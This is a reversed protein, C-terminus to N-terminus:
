RPVSGGHARYRPRDDAVHRGRNARTPHRLLRTRDAVLRPGARGGHDLGMLKGARLSREAMGDFVTALENVLRAGSRERPEHRYRWYTQTVARGDPWLDVRSGPPIELIRDSVTAEGMVYGFALLEVAAEPSPRAAGLAAALGWFDSSMLWGTPGLARYLPRSGVRDSIAVVHDPQRLVACFSGGFEALDAVSATRLLALLETARVVTDGRVAYGDAWDADARNALGANAM